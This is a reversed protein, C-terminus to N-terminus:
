KNYFFCKPIQKEVQCFRYYEEAQNDSIEVSKVGVGDKFNKSELCSKVANYKNSKTSYLSYLIIRKRELEKINKYCSIASLMEEFYLDYDWGSPKDISKYIEKAYSNTYTLFLNIDKRNGSKAKDKLYNYGGIPGYQRNIKMVYVIDPPYGAYSVTQSLSFFFIVCLLFKITNILM